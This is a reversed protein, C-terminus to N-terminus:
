IIWNKILIRHQAVLHSFDNLQLIEFINNIYDTTFM